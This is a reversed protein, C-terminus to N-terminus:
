ESVTVVLWTDDALDQIKDALKFRQMDTLGLIAWQDYSACDLNSYTLALTKSAAKSEESERMGYPFAAQALKTYAKVGIVKTSVKM